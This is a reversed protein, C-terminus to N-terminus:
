LILKPTWYPSKQIEKFIMMRCYLGYDKGYQHVTGYRGVGIYSTLGETTGHKM